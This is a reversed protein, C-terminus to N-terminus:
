MRTGTLIRRKIVSIFKTHYATPLKETHLKKRGGTAKTIAGSTNMGQHCLCIKKTETHSLLMGPVYLLIVTKKHYDNFEFSKSVLNRISM